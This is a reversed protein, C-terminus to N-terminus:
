TLPQCYWVAHGAPDLFTIVRAGWPMDEPEMWLKVGAAKLREAEQDVTVGHDVNLVLNVASRSEKPPGDGTHFGFTAGQAELWFSEDDNVSAVAFGLTKEYFQRCERVDDVGGVELYVGGFRAM